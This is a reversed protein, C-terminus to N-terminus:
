LKTTEQHERTDDLYNEEEVPALRIDEMAQGGELREDTHQDHDDYQQDSAQYDKGDHPGGDEKMKGRDKEKGEKGEKAGKKGKTAKRRQWYRWGLFGVIVLLVLGVGLFM